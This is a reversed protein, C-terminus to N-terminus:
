SAVVTSRRQSLKESCKACVEKRMGEVRWMHKRKGPQFSGCLDCRNQKYTKGVWILPAALFLLFGLLFKWPLLLIDVFSAKKQKPSPM